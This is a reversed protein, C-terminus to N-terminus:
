ALIVTLNKDNLISVIPDNYKVVLESLLQQNTSSKSIAALIDLLCDKKAPDLYNEITKLPDAFLLDLPESISKISIAAKGFFESYLVPSDASQAILKIFDSMISQKLADLTQDKKYDQIAVIIKMKDSDEYKDYYKKIFVTPYNDSTKEIRFYPVSQAAAAVFTKFSSTSKFYDRFQNLKIFNSSLIMSEESISLKYSRIIENVVPQTQM